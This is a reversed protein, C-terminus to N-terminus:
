HCHVLRQFLSKSVMMKQFVVYHRKLSDWKSLFDLLIEFNLVNPMSIRLNSSFIFLWNIFNCSNPVIVHIFYFLLSVFKKFTPWVAQETLSCFQSPVASSTFCLVQHNMADCDKTQEQTSM